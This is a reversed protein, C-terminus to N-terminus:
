CRAALFPSRGTQKGFPMIIWQTNRTFPGEFIDFRISGTNLIVHPAGRDPRTVLLPIVESTMLNLVSHKSTPPYRSQWYAVCAM